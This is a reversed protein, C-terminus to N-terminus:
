AAMVDPYSIAAYVFYVCSYLCILHLMCLSWRSGSVSVDYTDVLALFNNPFALAYSTFAALESLNTDGFSGISLRTRQFAGLFSSSAVANLLVFFIVDYFLSPSFIQHLDFCTDTWHACKKLKLLFEQWNIDVNIKKIVVKIEEVTLCLTWSVHIASSVCAM